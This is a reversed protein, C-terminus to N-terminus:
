PVDRRARRRRRASRILGGLFIAARWVCALALLWVGLVRIWQFVDPDILRRLVYLLFLGLVVATYVVVHVREVDAWWHKVVILYPILFALCGLLGVFLGITAFTNM